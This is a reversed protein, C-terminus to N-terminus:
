RTHRVGSSNNAIVFIILTAGVNKTIKPSIASDCDPSQSFETFNSVTIHLVNYKCFGVWDWILPKYLAPKLRKLPIYAYRELRSDM